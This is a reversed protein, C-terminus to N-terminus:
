GMIGFEPATRIFLKEGEEVTVYGANVLEEVAQKITDVTERSHETLRTFTCGNGLFGVTVFIGKAAMSITADDLVIDSFRTNATAQAM